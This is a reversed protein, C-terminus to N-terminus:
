AFFCFSAALFARCSALCNRREVAGSAPLAGSAGSAGSVGSAATPLASGRTFGMAHARGSRIGKDSMLSAIVREGRMFIAECIKERQSSRLLISHCLLSGVMRLKIELIKLAGSHKVNSSSAAHVPLVTTVM